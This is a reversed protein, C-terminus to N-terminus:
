AMMAGEATVVADMMVASKALALLSLANARLASKAAGADAVIAAVGTTGAPLSSAIPYASLKASITWAIRHPRPAPVVVAEVDTTEASKAAVTPRVNWSASRSFATHPLLLAIAALAEVAITEVNREMVNLRVIPRTWKLTM